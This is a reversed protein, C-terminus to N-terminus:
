STVMQSLLYTYLFIKFPKLIRSSQINGLISLKEVTLLSVSIKQMPFKMYIAGYIYIKIVQNQQCHLM